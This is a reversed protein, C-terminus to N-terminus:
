VLGKASLYGSRIGKKVQRSLTRNYDRLVRDFGRSDVTSVNINSKVTANAGGGVTGGTTATDRIVQAQEPTLVMEGKHVMAFMDEEINGGIDFSPVNFTTSQLVPTPTMYYSDPARGLNVESTSTSESSGGGGFLASMVLMIALAALLQTMMASINASVSTQAAAGDAEVVAATTGSAVRKTNEGAVFTNVGETVFNNMTSATASATTAFSGMTNTWTARVNALSTKFSDLGKTLPAFPTGKMGKGGMGGINFMGGLNGLLSTGMGGTQGKVTTKKGGGIGLHGLLAGGVNDNDKGKFMAKSLMKDFAEAIDKSIRKAISQFIAKFISKIADGFSMTRNMIGNLADEFSSVFAEKMDIAFRNARKFDETELEYKKQYYREDEQLMADLAQRTAEVGNSLSFIYRTYYEIDEETQAMKYARYASLMEEEAGALATKMLEAELYPMNRNHEKENKQMQYKRIDQEDVLGLSKAFELEKEAMTDIAKIGKERATHLAKELATQQKYIAQYLKAEANLKEVSGVYASASDEMMRRIKELPESLPKGAEVSDSISKQLAKAFNENVISKAYDADYGARSLDRQEKESARQKNLLDARFRTEEAFEDGMVQKFLEFEESKSFYKGQSEANLKAEALAERFERMAERYADGESSSGSSGGKEETEPVEGNYDPPEANLLGQTYAGLVEGRKKGQEEIAKEANAINNEQEKIRAERSKGFYAQTLAAKVGEMNFSAVARALAQWVPIENQIQRIREKSDSIIQESQKISNDISELASDREKEAKEGIIKKEIEYAETKSKSQKVAELGEKGLM